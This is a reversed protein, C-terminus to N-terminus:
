EGSLEADAIFTPQGKFINFLARANKLQSSDNNLFAIVRKCGTRQVQEAIHGLEKRSYHHEFWDSRGHLRLYVVGNTNIIDRPVSPSDASVVTLGLNQAWEIHEPVFWKPNRWELAFRERLGTFHFFAEINERHSPHANPPLQFLYHSVLGDLPAFLERFQLFKERAIDNFRFFHTIARNVKITWTLSRGELAWTTVQEKTPLQYFPMSLEIANLRSNKQYWLLGNPNWIPNSWGSTGVLIQM